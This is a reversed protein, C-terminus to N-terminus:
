MIPQGASCAVVNSAQTACCVKVLRPVQKIAFVTVLMLRFEVVNGTEESFMVHNTMVNFM